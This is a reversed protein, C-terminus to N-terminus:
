CRVQKLLQSWKYRERLEALPQQHRPLEALKQRASEAEALSAEMAAALNDKEAGLSPSDAGSEGAQQQVLWMLADDVWRRGCVM